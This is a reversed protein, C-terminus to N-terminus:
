KKGDQGGSSKGFFGDLYLKIKKWFIKMAFAISAVAAIVVQIVLSGTGPDLYAFAPAIFLVMAFPLAALFKLGGGNNM